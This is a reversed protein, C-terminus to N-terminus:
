KKQQVLDWTGKQWGWFAPSPLNPSPELCNGWIHGGQYTARLIHQKLAAQTPPINDISRSHRSFLVQRALNM